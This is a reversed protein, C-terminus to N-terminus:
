SEENELTCVASKETEMITYVLGKYDIEETYRYVHGM